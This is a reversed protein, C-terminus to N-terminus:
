LDKDREITWGPGKRAILVANVSGIKVKSQIKLPVLYQDDSLWLTVESRNKEFVRGEWTPLPKVVLAMYTGSPIKINEKDNIGVEVPYSDEGESNANMLITIGIDMNTKRMAFICAVPDKSDPLIQFSKGKSFAVNMTSDYHTERIKQYKGERIDKKFYISNFSEKNFKSELVDRVKFFHSFKESTEGTVTATFVPRGEFLGGDELKITITGATIGMWSVEYVLVEGLSFIPNTIQIQSDNLRMVSKVPKEAISVVGWMFISIIYIVTKRM